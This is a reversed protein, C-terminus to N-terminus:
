RSSKIIEPFSGSIETLPATITVVGGSDKFIRYGTDIGDTVTSSPDIPMTGMYESVLYQALNYCGANSAITDASLATHHVAFDDIVGFFADSAYGSGLYLLNSNGAATTPVGSATTADVGGNVQITMNSSGSAGNYIGAIHYWSNPLWLSKQSELFGNGGYARVTAEAFTDGRTVAYLKGSFVNLSQVEASGTPNQSVVWAIGNWSRIEGDGSLTGSWGAYLTGNFVGLSLTKPKYQGSNVETITSLGSGTWKWIEGDSLGAGGLGIYLNRDNEALSYVGAKTYDLVAASTWSATNLEFVHSPSPGSGTGTGAYLKGNFVTLAYVALAEATTFQRSLSWATGDYAWISAGVGDVVDRGIGAYLKGRYRILSLISSNLVSLGTDQWSVGDFAYVRAKGDSSTQGSYLKKNFVTLANVSVSGAPYGSVISWVGGIKKLIKGAGSLTLGGGYLSGQFQTITNIGKIDDAISSAYENNWAAAASGQVEWEMKGSDGNLQMRYNGKDFLAQHHDFSGAEFKQNLKIWGELSLANTPDGIANSVSAGGLPNQVNLGNSLKASLYSESTTGTFGGVSDSANGSAEDFKWHGRPVPNTDSIVTAPKSGICQGDPIDAPPTGRKDATYTTVANIISGVNSLRRANRSDKFRQAPNIAILIVAFLIAIIAIVVLLEVLTFGRFKNRINEGNM